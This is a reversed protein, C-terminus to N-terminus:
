YKEITGIYEKIKGSQILNFRELNLYLNITYLKDTEPNNITLIGKEDLEYSAELYSGNPYVRCMILQRIDGGRTIFERIVKFKDPDDNAIVEKIDLHNDDGPNIMVDIRNSLTYGNMEKPWDLDAYIPSIYYVSDPDEPIHNDFKALYEEPTLFLFETPLDAIMTFSDVIRAGWEIAESNEVTDKSPIGNVEVQINLEQEMFFMYVGNPTIRRIIPYKSISNLFSLFEESKWNYGHFRAINRIHKIPLLHPITRTLLFKSNHRINMLMMNYTNIQRDLTQEMIMIDFEFRFRNRRYVMEFMDSKMIEISYLLKAGFADSGPDILNYRNIMNQAFISNEDLEVSRPDIVLFPKEKKYIQKMFSKFDQYSSQTRIRVFKFYNPEFFSQFWENFCAVINSQIYSTKQIQKDYRITPYEDEHKPIPYLREFSGDDLRFTGHPYVQIDYAM